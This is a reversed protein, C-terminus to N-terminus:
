GPPSVPLGFMDSVFTRKAEADIVTQTAENGQWANTTGLEETESEM